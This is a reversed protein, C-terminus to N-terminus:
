SSVRENFSGIHISDCFRCNYQNFSKKRRKAMVNCAKEAAEVSEYRRKKMCGTAYEVDDKLHLPRCQKKVDAWGM